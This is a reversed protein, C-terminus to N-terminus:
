AKSADGSTAPAPVPAPAPAAAPKSRWYGDRTWASFADRLWGILANALWLAWALMLVKYVWLPVSVASAQPLADASRDAFWRLAHAGSGNGVVHMDPQGLLGQPIASILSLLAFLTLVALGIQLLNFGTTGKPMEGRARWAFAFLWAVVVILAGWSFTSFGLGLLLWDHFKLNTRRTRALAFAIAIMLVLEGWYLVAPGVAPGWTALVWRDAPLQLGLDVNAAPLGLAVLPTRAVLGLESNDRFRVEFHQAGPKLPLSLKGDLARLNLTENDRRVSIVEAGKPLTITQEGGQSARLSLNLVQTASRQGAESNLAVTDIARVAGQTPAPRAIKLTLKEGPLPHFEMAHYDGPSDNADGGVAPVGSFEAHWTPSVLVRWVEARETLEPAILTLTDGKDLASNWTIEADGDAFAAMAAAGKGEINQVKIGARSVHEGALLPIALTFGGHAPSLRTVTTEATWDLGLSLSRTVTVYPPFQQEAGEAAKGPTSESRERALALTSALLREDEIGSVSWGKGAFTARAPALAFGFSLKDAYAAYNLEVRHAGRDLAIWSSGDERRALAVDATNDVKISKLVAAKDANPLPLALREGAAVDLVLTVSDGAADVQMRAISACAPACKPAETLRERLQQLRADDPLSQAQAVPTAGFAGLLLALPLLATAARPLRLPKARFASWGLWILLAALLLRLPRVLWPPAIVLRVSQEPLVPGSWSLHAVGGINWHPEGSGTQMVTSQSYHDILDANNVRSGTVVVSQLEKKEQEVKLKSPAMHRYALMSPEPAPTSMPTAEASPPPAAAPPPAVGMRGAVAYSRAAVQDNLDDLAYAYGGESELQPYLAYRVQSALFPLSVVILCLLAFRRAWEAVRQLKGEPLMRAILALALVFLLSWLPSGSEQYGLILYATAAIGGVLGLLRGAALAVIAAIFVDLLTWRSIWSGAVHDAGPAGLLKYGFPFHLTTDIRDFRERWGAAPVSGATAIRSGAALDVAPTRWEVGSLEAKAGRTVLLPERAGRGPGEARELTYPAAIDFRWGQVMTGRVLDRAYWGSGDFDLWAERQLTLRNAEDPALGRSRQEITLKDGDGLAFAPLASWEEPVQAQRPDVAVAANASTVRLRAASAYSWVEQKPWPAAALRAVADALPALARARLTLTMSGPQVQVHLRGDNDLRAPWDGALAIAEFGAPLAPGLTEERAQGSVTFHLQTELGAPVGDELKRFVHLELSDSEKAEVEARGLTVQDGDRQVPAVTKGDINLAVLGIGAPVRLSQPRASWPITGAVEYSGAQLYLAPASERALVPARQGNVTVGQPWHEEDGPLEIWGPADVRWRVAFKAAQTGAELTLRGPWACVYGNADPQMQTALFPCARFEQDKLVWTRWDRLVAPIAADDTAPAAFVNGALMCLVTALHLPIRRM